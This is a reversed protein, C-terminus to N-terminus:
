FHFSRISFARASHLDPKLPGSRPPLFLLGLYIIFEAYEVVAPQWNSHYALQDEWDDLRERLRRHVAQWPARSQTWRSNPWSHCTM